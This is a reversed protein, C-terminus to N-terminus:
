EGGHFVVVDDLVLQESSVQIREGNRIVTTSPANLINMKELVNKARVEQFIGILTNGIVVPLFTLSRFSGALCVLITLVFFIMNFYTFTNEIIIERTTKSVSDVMVNTKGAQVRKEVQSRTLGQIELNNDM